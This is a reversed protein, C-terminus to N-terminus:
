PHQRAAERAQRKARKIAAELEPTMEVSTAEEPTPEPEGVAEKPEVAQEPAPCVAGEPTPHCGTAAIAFALYALKKNM